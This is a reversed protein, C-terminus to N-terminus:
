HFAAVVASTPNVESTGDEPLAHELSLYGATQFKYSVPLTTSLGLSSRAGSELEFTVESDPPLPQPPPAGGPPAARGTIPASGPPTSTFVM